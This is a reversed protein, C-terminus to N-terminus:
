VEVMAVAHAAIGIALFVVALVLRLTRHRDSIEIKWIKPYGPRRDSHKAM